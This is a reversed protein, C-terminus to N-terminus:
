DFLNTIVAAQVLMISLGLSVLDFPSQLFLQLIKALIDSVQGFISM